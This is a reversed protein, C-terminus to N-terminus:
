QSASENKVQIEGEAVAVAVAAAAAAAAAAAVAKREIEEAKREKWFSRGYSVLIEEGKKIGVWGKQKKSMARVFVGIGRENVVQGKVGNKVYVLERFEANPEHAVGRYDNVMRAENGMSRADVGVCKERDLSLDYDSNEDRDNEGHVYGLYPVVLSSPALAVRAFLGHQEFAPHDVRTIPHIAVTSSPQLPLRIVPPDVATAHAPSPAGAAIAELIVQSYVPRTLYRISPPWNRPVAHPSRSASPTSSHKSTGHPLLAGSAKSDSSSVKHRKLAKSPM